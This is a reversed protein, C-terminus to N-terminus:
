VEFRTMELLPHEEVRFLGDIEKSNDTSKIKNKQVPRVLLGQQITKIKSNNELYAADILGISNNQRIPPIM